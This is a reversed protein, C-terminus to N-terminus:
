PQYRRARHLMPQRLRQRRSRPFWGSVSVSRAGQVIVAETPGQEILHGPLQSHRDHGLPMDGGGSSARRATSLPAQHTMTPEAMVRGPTRAVLKAPASLRGVDGPGAMPMSMPPVEMLAPSTSRPPSTQQADCAGVSAVLPRSAIEETSSRTTQCTSAAELSLCKCGAPSPMAVAPATSSRSPLLRQLSRYGEPTPQNGVGRRQPPASEGARKRTHVVGLGSDEGFLMEPESAAEGIEHGDGDSRTDPSANDRPSLQQATLVSKRSADSVRNEASAAPGTVAAAVAAQFRINGGGAQKALVARVAPRDRFRRRVIRGQGHFDILQGAATIHGRLLGIRHQRVIQGLGDCIEEIEEIWLRHEKRAAENFPKRFENRIQFFLHLFQQVESGLRWGCSRAAFAPRKAPTCPAAASTNSDPRHLQHLWGGFALSGAGVKPKVPQPSVWPRLSDPTKVGTYLWDFSRPKLGPPLNEPCM